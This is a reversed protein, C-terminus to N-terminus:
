SYSLDDASARKAKLIVRGSKVRVTFRVADWGHTAISQDRAAQVQQCFFEFNLGETPEHYVEKLRRYREFLARLQAEEDEEITTPRVPIPTAILEDKEGEAELRIMQNLADIMQADPIQVDLEQKMEPEDLERDITIGAPEVISHEPPDSLPQPSPLLSDYLQDILVNPKSDEPAAAQLEARVRELVEEEPRMSSILDESNSISEQDEDVAEDMREETSPSTILQLHAHEHPDSMELSGFTGDFSVDNPLDEIGTLESFEFDDTLQEENPLIPRELISMDEFDNLLDEDDISEEVSSADMSAGEDLEDISLDSIQVSQTTFEADPKRTPRESRLTQASVEAVESETSDSTGELDEVTIIELDRPHSLSSDLHSQNAESYEEELEVQVDEVEHASIESIEITQRDSHREPQDIEQDGEPTEQVTIKQPHKLEEQDSQPQTETSTVPDIQEPPDAVVSGLRASVEKDGEEEDHDPLHPPSLDSIPLSLDRLESPIDDDEAEPGELLEDGGFDVDLEDLEEPTQDEPKTEPALPEILSWDDDLLMALQLDLEAEKIFRDLALAFLKPKRREFFSIKNEAQQIAQQIVAREELLEELQEYTDEAAGERIRSILAQRAQTAETLLDQWQGIDENIAEEQAFLTTLLSTPDEATSLEVNNNELFQFFVPAIPHPPAEIYKDIFARLHGDGIIKSWQASRGRSKLTQRVDAAVPRYAELVRQADSWRHDPNPHLCRKLILKLGGPIEDDLPSIGSTSEIEAFTKLSNAGLLPRGTILQYMMAGFAWLDSRLDGREGNRQEPSTYIVMLEERRTLNNSWNRYRAYQAPFPLLRLQFRHDIMVRDPSLDRYAVGLQHLAALTELLQEGIYLSAYIDAYPLLSSLDIGGHTPVSIWHIERKGHILSLDPIELRGQDIINVCHAPWEDRDLQPYLDIPRDSTYILCRAGDSRRQGVFPFIGERPFSSSFLQYDPLEPWRERPLFNSQPATNLTNVAQYILAGMREEVEILKRPNLRTKLPSLIDENFAKLLDTLHPGQSGLTSCLSRILESLDAENVQDSLHPRLLDVIKAGLEVRDPSTLNKARQVLLQTYEVPWLSLAQYLRSVFQLAFSAHDQYANQTLVFLGLRHLASVLEHADTPTKTNHLTMSQISPEESM